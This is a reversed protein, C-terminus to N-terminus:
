RTLMFFEMNLYFNFVSEEETNGVLSVFVTYVAHSTDALLAYIVFPQKWFKPQFIKFLKGETAPALGIFKQHILFPFLGGLLIMVYAVLHM